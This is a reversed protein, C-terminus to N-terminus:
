PRDSAEDSALKNKKHRALQAAKMREITEPSHKWRISRKKGTNSLAIKQGTEPAHKKGTMGKHNLKLNECHAASKKKGSLKESIKLRTEQSRPGTSIGKKSESWAIRAEEFSRSSVTLRKLRQNVMKCLCHFAGGASRRFKLNDHYQYIKWLLYHAIFHEKATLMVINSPDNSGGMSKMIIHHKEYYIEPDLERDKRSIMLRDYVERHNM